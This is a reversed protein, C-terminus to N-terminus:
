VPLEVVLAERDVTVPIKGKHDKCKTGVALRGQGAWLGLERGGTQQGLTVVVRDTDVKVWVKTDPQTTQGNAALFADIAVRPIAMRGDDWLNATLLGPIAPAKPQKPAKPSTPAAPATTTTKHGDVNPIPIDVEFDHNGVEVINPGYVFVMQNAPTRGKGTTFCGHQEPRQGTCPYAPMTGQFYAGRVFSGMGTVSFALDPRHTRILAAFEGSSFCKNEAVCTEILNTVCTRWDTAAKVIDILNM